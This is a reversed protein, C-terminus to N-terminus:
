SAFAWGLEVQPLADFVMVAEKILGESRPCSVVAVGTPTSFLIANGDIGLAVWVLPVDATTYAASVGQSNFENVHLM